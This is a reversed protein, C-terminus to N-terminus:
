LWEKKYKSLEKGTLMYVDDGIYVAVTHITNDENYVVVLDKNDM